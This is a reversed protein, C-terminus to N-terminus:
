QLDYISYVGDATFTPIAAPSKIYDIFKGANGSPAGNTLVYLGSCLGQEYNTGQAKGAFLDKLAGQVNKPNTIYTIGAADDAIDVLSMTAPNYYGFDIVGIVKSSSTGAAVASAVGPNGTYAAKSGNVTYIM